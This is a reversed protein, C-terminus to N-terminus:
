DGAGLPRFDPGLTRAPRGFLGALATAAAILGCVVLSLLFHVYVGEGQPPPGASARLAAPWVVGAAGWCAVCVLAGVAGLRLCRMRLRALEASPLPHGARVRRLGAAVPWAALAFLFMGVPFFAGNVAPIIWEFAGRAAPWHAIIEAENYAINFLSALANPVVGLLLVTAVPRRM